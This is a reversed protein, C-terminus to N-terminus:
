QGGADRRTNTLLLRIFGTDKRRSKGRGQPTAGKAEIQNARIDLEDALDLLTRGARDGALMRAYGRIRVARARLAAPAEATDVTSQCELAANAAVRKKIWL